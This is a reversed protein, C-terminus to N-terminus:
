ISNMQKLINHINFHNTSIFKSDINTHKINQSNLEKEKRKERKKNQKQKSLQFQDNQIVKNKKQTNCKNNTKFMIAEHVQFSYRYRSCKYEQVSVYRHNIVLVCKGDSNSCLTSNNFCYIYMYPLM